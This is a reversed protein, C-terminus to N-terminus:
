LLSLVGANPAVREIISVYRIRLKLQVARRSNHQFLWLESHEHTSM